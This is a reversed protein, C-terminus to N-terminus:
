AMINNMFTSVIFNEAKKFNLKVSLSLQLGILKIGQGAEYLYNLRSCCNLKWASKFLFRM